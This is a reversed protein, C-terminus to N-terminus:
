TGIFLEPKQTGKCILTCIDTVTLHQAYPSKISKFPRMRM